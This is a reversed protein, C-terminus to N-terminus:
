SWAQISCKISGLYQPHALVIYLVSGASSFPHHPKTNRSLASRENRRFGGAVRIGKLVGIGLNDFRSRASLGWAPGTHPSSPEPLIEKPDFRCYSQGFPYLHIRRYHYPCRDVASGNRQSAFLWRPLPVSCYPRCGASVTSVLSLCSNTKRAARTTATPVAGNESGAGVGSSCWQVQVGAYWGVAYRLPRANSKSMGAESRSTPHRQACRRRGFYSHLDFPM